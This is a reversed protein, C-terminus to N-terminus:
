GLGHELWNIWSSLAFAIFWVIIKLVVYLAADFGNFYAELQSDPDEPIYFPHKGRFLNLFLDFWVWYAAMCAPIEVWNFFVPTYFYLVLAIGLLIFFKLRHYLKTLPIHRKIVQAEVYANLVAFLGVLLSIFATHDVTNWITNM